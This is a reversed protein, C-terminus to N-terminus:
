MRVPWAAPSIAPLQLESFNYSASKTDKQRLLMESVRLLNFIPVNISSLDWSFSISANVSIKNCLKAHMSPITDTTAAAAFQRPNFIEKLLELTSM